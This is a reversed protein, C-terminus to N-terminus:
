EFRPFSIRSQLVKISKVLANCLLQMFLRRDKGQTRSIRIGAPFHSNYTEVLAADCFPVTSIEVEKRQESGSQESPSRWSGSSAFKM